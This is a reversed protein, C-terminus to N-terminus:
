WPGKRHVRVASEWVGNWRARSDAAARREGAALLGAVFARGPETRAAEARLWREAVVADQHGGLVDQLAALARGLTRAPKGLVPAVAEAAYRARKARIRVRHLADDPPEPPLRRVDRRLRKWPRAVLGPLVSRAPETAVPGLAPERSAAVLCDLLALYRGSRMAELLAERAREREAELTAVLGEAEARDPGPLGTAARRIRDALVEADRVRGLSGGLWRLEERLETTWGPDLLPAFTRLDSRLRRTAVRAEHLEEPDAGLRVGPDNDLLRLVSLAIAHRVVDGAASKRGADPVVLGASRRVPHAALSEDEVPKKPAPDLEGAPIM